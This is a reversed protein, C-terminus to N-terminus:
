RYMGMMDEGMFTLAYAAALLPLLTAACNQYDLVQTRTHAHLCLAPAPLPPPLTAHPIWM